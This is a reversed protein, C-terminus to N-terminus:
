TMHPCWYLPFLTRMLLQPPQIPGELLLVELTLSVLPMWLLQQKPQCM